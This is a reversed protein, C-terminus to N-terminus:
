ALPAVSLQWGSDRCDGRHRLMDGPDSVGAEQPALPWFLTFMLQSLSHNTLQPYSEVTESCSSFPFFIPTVQGFPQGGHMCRELDAECRRLGQEGSPISCEPPQWDM